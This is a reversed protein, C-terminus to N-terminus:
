RGMSRRTTTAASRAGSRTTRRRSLAARSSSLSCTRRGFTSSGCSSIFLSHFGEYPNGWDFRVVRILVRDLLVRTAPEATRDAGGGGSQGGRMWSRDFKGDEHHFYARPETCDLSEPDGWEGGVLVVDHHERVQPSHAYHPLRWETVTPNTRIYSVSSSSSADSPAAELRRRADEGLGEALAPPIPVRVHRPPTCVARRGSKWHDLLRNSVWEDCERSPADSHMVWASDALEKPPVLPVDVVSLAATTAIASGVAVVTQPQEISSAKQIPPPPTPTTPSTTAGAIAAPMNVDNVKARLPDAAAIAQQVAAEGGEKQRQPPLPDSLLAKDNAIGVSSAADAPTEFNSTSALLFLIIGGAAAAGLALLGGNGNRQSPLPKTNETPRSTM